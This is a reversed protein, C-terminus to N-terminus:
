LIQLFVKRGLSRAVDARAMYWLSKATWQEPRYTALDRPKGDVVHDTPWPLQAASDTSGAM